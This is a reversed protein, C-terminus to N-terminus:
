AADMGIVSFVETLSTKGAAAARVGEEFLTLMGESRAIARQRSEPAKELIAAEIAPSMPMVEALSMRGRYGTGRCEECGAAACWHTDAGPALLTGLRTQMALPPAEPRKCANCLLRVLRQASIANVTSAVLYDEIGMELLRTVTAPANNTHITSLVMHGTLAAEVAISASELDRIEGIMLVNPNHRLVSRLARAFTMGIEPKVQIQSVGPIEYEVPDEVSMFKVQPNMLHRLGAYLTTTKGSGTPGTVLTIGNPKAFATVLRERAHDSLGLAPMDLHAATQDLLRLTVTEGHLSPMTAVRLDIDRGRVATRIRGDQPLRREAINLKALIKIRSVVAEPSGEVPLNVPSMAGDLRMRVRVHDREPEIHIDSARAEVAMALVDEVWRIVPAGRALDILRELDNDSVSVTPEDAGAADNGPRIASLWARVDSRTAVARRVSLGTKYGVANAAEDDLPDAMALVVEGGEVALPVVNSDLLFRPRLGALDAPIRPTGALKAHSLGLVEALTAAVAEESCLGLKILVSPLPEGTKEVSSLARALKAENIHRKAVLREGLVLWIDKRGNSGKAASAKAQMKMGATDGCLSLERQRDGPLCTTHWKCLMM